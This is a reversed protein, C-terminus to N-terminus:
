SRRTQSTMVTETM